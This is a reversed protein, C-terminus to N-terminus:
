WHLIRWWTMPKAIAQGVSVPVEFHTTGSTFTATGIPTNKAIADTIPTIHVDAPTIGHNWVVASLSEHAFLPVNTRLWPVYVSGLPQGKQVVQEKAFNNRASQLLTAGSSFAQGLTKAGMIVGVLTFNTGPEPSYNAAFLICGLAQDSYGTKLGNVGNTGLMRNNNYITGATPITASKQHVIEAIIPQRMAIIGLQVLDSPTSTTLPSLGSADPGITTHALGLQKVYSTAFTHYAQMSGFAWVALTDAMNNASPLLMAQLVQYETIQEGAAVLTVSGDQALYNRYSQVDAETLTITPGQQGVNLPKQRLVSLATIVKAISATPVPTENTNSALVGYGDAGIAAKSGDTPWSLAPQSAASALPEAVASM